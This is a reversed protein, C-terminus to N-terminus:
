ATYPQCYDPAVEIERLEGRFVNWERPCAIGLKTQNRDIKLCSIYIKEGGLEEPLEIVLVEGVRRTLILGPKIHTTM